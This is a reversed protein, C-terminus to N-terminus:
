EGVAESRSTQQQQEQQQPAPKQVGPEPRSEQQHEAPKAQRDPKSEKRDKQEQQDQQSHAPMGGALLLSLVTVGVAGVLKM